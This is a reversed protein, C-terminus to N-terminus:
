KLRSAVTTKGLLAITKTLDPGHVQATISVRLGM